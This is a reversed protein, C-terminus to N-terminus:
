PADIFVTGDAGSGFAGPGGTATANGAPLGNATTARIAVRGGGGGANNGPRTGGDASLTGSGLLRDVSLNLTGGSGNGVRGSSPSLGGNARVAGDAILDGATLFVRGGGNGGDAGGTSAGGGSGLDQPDTESGYTAGPSGAVSTDDGGLGGHSGGDAVGSGVGGVVTMGPESPDRGGLYGRGSVDIASTADVRITTAVLELAAEYLATTFPHSLWSNEEVALERNALLPDAIVASAGGRLTVDDFFWAGAYIAAASAVSAFDVGNENPTVVTITTDTNSAIEFTEGQAVDPNLRLGILGGPLISRGGDVTLADATVAQAVGPGIEPLPTEPLWRSARGADFVLRGDVDDAFAFWM